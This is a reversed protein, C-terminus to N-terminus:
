SRRFMGLMGLIMAGIAVIVVLSVWGPVTAAASQLDCTANFAQTGNTGCVSNAIDGATITSDQTNAIVLFAVVMVLAFTALSIALGSLNAMVQAKKTIM